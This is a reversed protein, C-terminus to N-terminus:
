FSMQPIRPHTEVLSMEKQGAINRSIARKVVSTVLRTLKNGLPCLTHSRFHLNTKLSKKAPLRNGGSQISLIATNKRLSKYLPSM